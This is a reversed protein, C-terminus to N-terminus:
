FCAFAKELDTEQLPLLECIKLKIKNYLKNKKSNIVSIWGNMICQSKFTIGYFQLM